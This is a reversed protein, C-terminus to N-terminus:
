SKQQKCFFSDYYEKISFEMMSESIAALSYGATRMKRMALLRGVSISDFYKYTSKDDKKPELISLKQYHRLSETTVGM